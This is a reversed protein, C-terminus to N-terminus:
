PSRRSSQAAAPGREQAPGGKKAPGWGRVGPLARSLLLHYLRRPLLRRLMYFVRADLTASVRLPPRRQELTALVRAAVVEPTAFAFEMLREVFPTMSRYVAHYPDTVDDRRREAERSLRVHRFSDSHVFGPQVLTVRINWPKVEYWLAESAGELAFKSASYVGMTPMAMMGSVSSVNLIRGGGKRRMGPLVLRSLEMPAVFNTELQVLTEEPSIHESVARYTMGANNILVDVGGWRDDIEAVVAKRQADDTVDLARLWLRENEEVQEDDFRELSSDRATAVVRADPRAWLMRVIALGIGTSSGTVLFV